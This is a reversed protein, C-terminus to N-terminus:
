RGFQGTLEALPVPDEAEIRASGTDALTQLAQRWAPALDLGDLVAPVSSPEALFQLRPVLGADTLTLTAESLAPALAEDAVTRASLTAGALGAVSGAFRLRVLDDGDFVLTLSAAAQLRDYGLAALALALGPARQELATVALPPPALEIVYEGGQETVVADGLPWGWAKVDRVRLARRFAAPDIAAWTLGEIQGLRQALRAASATAAAHFLLGAAVLGVLLGVGLLGLMLRTRNM